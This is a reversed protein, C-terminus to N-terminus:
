LVRRVLQLGQGAKTQIWETQWLIELARIRSIFAMMDSGQNPDGALEEAQLLPASHGWRARFEEQKRDLFNGSKGLLKLWGSSRSKRRSCFLSM